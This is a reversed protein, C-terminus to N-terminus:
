AANWVATQLVTGATQFSNWFAPHIPILHTPKRTFGFSYLAGAHLTTSAPEAGVATSAAVESDIV